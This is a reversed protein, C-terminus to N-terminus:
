PRRNTPTPSGCGHAVPLTQGACLARCPGQRLATAGRTSQRVGLRGLTGGAPAPDPNRRRAAQCGILSGDARFQDHHGRDQGVHHHRLLIQRPEDCHRTGGRGTCDGQRLGHFAHPHCHVGQPRDRGAARHTQLLLQACRPSRAQPDAGRRLRHLRRRRRAPDGHPSTCPEPRRERAQGRRARRGDDLHPRQRNRGSFGHGLTHRRQRDLQSHM